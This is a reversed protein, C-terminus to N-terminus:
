KRAFRYGVGLAGRVSYMKIDERVLTYAADPEMELKGVSGITGPFTMSLMAVAYLGQRGIRVAYKFESGWNFQVSSRIAAIGYTSRAEDTIESSVASSASIFFGFNLGYFGGGKPLDFFPMMFALRASVITSTGLKPGYSSTAPTESFGLEQSFALLTGEFLFQNRRFGGALEFSTSTKFGPSLHQKGDYSYSPGVGGKIEAQSGSSPGFSGIAGVHFEAYWVNVSDKGQGMAMSAMLSLILSFAARCM